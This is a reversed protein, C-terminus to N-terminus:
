RVKGHQELIIGCKDLYYTTTNSAIIAPKLDWVIVVVLRIRKVEGLLRMLKSIPLHELKVDCCNPDLKMLKSSSPLSAGGSGKSISEEYGHAIELLYKTLSKYNEENACVGSANTQLLFFIPICLSVIVKSRSFKRSRHGKSLQSCDGQPEPKETLYQTSM